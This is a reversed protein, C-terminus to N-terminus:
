VYAFRLNWLSVCACVHVHMNCKEQTILNYLNIILHVSLIDLDWTEDLSLHTMIIPSSVEANEPNAMKGSVPLGWNWWAPERRFEIHPWWGTYVWRRGDPDRHFRIITNNKQPLSLWKVAGQSPFCHMLVESPQDGPRVKRRSEPAHTSSYWHAEYPNASQLENRSVVIWLLHWTLHRESSWCSYSKWPEECSSFKNWLWVKFPFCVWICPLYCKNKQLLIIVWFHHNNLVRFGNLLWQVPKLRKINFLPCSRFPM